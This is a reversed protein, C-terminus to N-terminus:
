KGIFCYYDMYEFRNPKRSIWYDGQSQCSEKSAVEIKELEGSAGNKGDYVFKLVLWHTEAYTATPLAFAALLPILSRKM